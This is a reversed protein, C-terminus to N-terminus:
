ATSVVGRAQPLPLDNYTAIGPAAAVVAPIAHIPPMATMIHGLVFFDEISKANEIMDQPPLFGVTMNVTPRGEITIKWGDGDLQWDPDLTQGKKWRVNIDIVTKGGVVGQWSAFM